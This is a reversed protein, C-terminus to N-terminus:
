EEGENDDEFIEKIDDINRISYRCAFNIIDQFDWDDPFVYGYNRVLLDCDDEHKPMQTIRRQLESELQRVKKSVKVLLRKTMLDKM